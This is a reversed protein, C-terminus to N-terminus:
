GTCVSDASHEAGDFGFFDWGQYIAKPGGAIILPRDAGLSHADRIQAYAAASHIQMASVMLLEPPRGGLRCRSPRINPNWSQSVVRQNLFGASSLAASIARIGAPVIQKDWLIFPLMRTRPDFSHIILTPTASNVGTERLRTALRTFAGSPVFRDEATRIPLEM